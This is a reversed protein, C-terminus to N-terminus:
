FTQLASWAGGSIRYQWYWTGESLQQHPNFLAWPIGERHLTQGNAFLSDTSLRVDYRVTKGKEAPWRLVPTNFQAAIGATPEANSLYRSYVADPYSAPPTHPTGCQILAAAAVGIFLRTQQKRIMGHATNIPSNGFGSTGTASTHGNCRASVSRVQVWS